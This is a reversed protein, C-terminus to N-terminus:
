SVTSSHNSDVHYLGLAWVKAGPGAAEPTAMIRSAGCGALTARLVLAPARGPLWPQFRGLLLGQPWGVTSHMGFDRPTRPPCPACRLTRVPTKRLERVVRAQRTVVDLFWSM